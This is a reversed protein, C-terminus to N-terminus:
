YLIAANLEKEKKEGAPVVGDEWNAGFLKKRLRFRGPFASSYYELFAYAALM